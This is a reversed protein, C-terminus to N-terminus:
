REGRLLRERVVQIVTQVGLSRCTIIPSPMGWNDKTCQALFADWQAECGIVPNNLHPNAYLCRLLAAYPDPVASALTPSLSLMTFAIVLASVKTMACTVARDIM